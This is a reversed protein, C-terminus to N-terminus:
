SMGIRCFLDKLCRVLGISKESDAGWIVGLFPKFVLAGIFKKQEGTYHM